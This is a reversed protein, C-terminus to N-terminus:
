GVLWVLTWRYGRWSSRRKPFSLDGHRESDPLRHDVTTNTRIAAPETKWHIGFWQDEREHEDCPETWSMVPLRPLGIRPHDRREGGRELDHGSWNVHCRRWVVGWRLTSGRWIRPRRTAQRSASRATASRCSCDTSTSSCCHARRTTMGRHGTRAQRARGQRIPSWRARPRVPSARQRRALTGPRVRHAQVGDRPRGCPVRCRPHGQHAAARHRVDVRIPNTTRLQIWHEVPYDYFALLVDQDDVVKAVAKPFKATYSPCAAHVALGDGCFGSVHAPARCHTPGARTCNGTTLLSGPAAAAPDCRGADPMIPHVCTAAGPARQRESVCVRQRARQTAPTAPEAPPNRHRSSGIRCGGTVTIGCGDRAHRNIERQDAFWDLM